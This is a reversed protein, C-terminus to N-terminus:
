GDVSKIGMAGVIRVYFTRKHRCFAAVFLVPVVCRKIQRPLLRFYILVSLHCIQM